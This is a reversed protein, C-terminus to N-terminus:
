DEYVPWEWDPQREYFENWTTPLEFSPLINAETARQALDLLLGASTDQWQTPHLSSSRCFRRAL